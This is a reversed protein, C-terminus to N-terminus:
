SPEDATRARRTGSGDEAQGDLQRKLQAELEPMVLRGLDEAIVQQRTDVAHLYIMAARTSRHGMKDM